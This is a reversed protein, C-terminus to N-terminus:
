AIPDDKPNASDAEPAYYAGCYLYIYRSLSKNSRFLGDEPEEFHAFREAATSANCLLAKTASDVHVAADTCMSSIKLVVCLYYSWAWLLKVPHSDNGEALTRMVRRTGQLLSHWQTRYESMEGEDDSLIDCVTPYKRLAM